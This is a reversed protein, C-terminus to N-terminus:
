VGGCVFGRRGGGLLSGGARAQSTRTRARRLGWWRGGRRGARGRGRGGEAGVQLHFQLLQQYLVGVAQPGVRQGLEELVGVFDTVSQFVIIYM